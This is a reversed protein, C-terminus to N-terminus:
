DNIPVEYFGSDEFRSLEKSFLLMPEDDGIGNRWYQKLCKISAKLEDAHITLLQIDFDINKHTITNFLSVGFEPILVVDKVFCHAEIPDNHGIDLIEVQVEVRTSVLNM